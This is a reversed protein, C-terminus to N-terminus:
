PAPAPLPTPAPFGTAQEPVVNIQDIVDRVGSTDRAIQLARSEEAESRVEGTLTVVQDATDVNSRQLSAVLASHRSSPRIWTGFSRVPCCIGSSTM